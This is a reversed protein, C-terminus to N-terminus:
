SIPVCALFFTGGPPSFQFVLANVVSGNATIFPQLAKFSAGCIGFSALREPSRLYIRGTSAVRSYRPVGSVEINSAHVDFLFQVPPNLNDEYRHSSIFEM